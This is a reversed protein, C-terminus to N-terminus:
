VLVAGVQRGWERGWRIKASLLKIAAVLAADEDHHALERKSFSTIPTMPDLIDGSFLPYM